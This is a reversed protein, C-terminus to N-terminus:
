QPKTLSVPGDKPAIEVVDEDEPDAKSQPKDGLDSLIKMFDGKPKDEGKAGEVPAGSSPPLDPLMAPAIAADGGISDEQLSMSSVPPASSAGFDVTVSDPYSYTMRTDYGADIGAGGSWVPNEKASSPLSLDVTRNGSICTVRLDESSQRVELKGPATFRYRATQEYAYCSANDAGNLSFSIPQYGKNLLATTSVCACLGLLSAVSLVSTKLSRNKM